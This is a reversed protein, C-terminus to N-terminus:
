FFYKIQIQFHSFDEMMKFRYNDGDPHNNISKIETISAVCVMNDYVNYESKLLYLSGSIKEKTGYNDIDLMTSFTIKLQNNIINKDLSILGIRNSLIALPAGMGPTFFNKPNLESFDMDDLVPLPIDDSVPLSDSSYSKTDYFFLQGTLNISFPLETELQITSQSYEAKENMPFSFHLSDYGFSDFIEVYKGQSSIYLYGPYDRNIKNNTDRTKFLGFDARITFFDNFLSFGYGLVETKRHSFLIDFRPVNLSVGQGWTNVGTFNYIRDFGNFYVLNLDGYDFKQSLLFGYETPTKEQNYIQIKEPVLPLEIPFESDNIPIRNTNHIPSFVLNLRTNNKYIDFNASFTALKRDVGKSFLYYYDLPNIVDLPSNDDVTGWSSIQKGIKLIGLQIEWYLYLERLDWSFDTPSTSGLFDTNKRIQHEIAISSRVSLHKSGYNVKISFLRYPLNIISYDSLRAIYNFDTQGNIDLKVPSNGILTSLLFSLSIIKLRM